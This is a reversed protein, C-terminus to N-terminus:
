AGGEASWGALAPDTLADALWARAATPPSGAPPRIRLQIRGGDEDLRWSREWGAPLKGLIRVVATAAPATGPPRRVLVLDQFQRPAMGDTKM